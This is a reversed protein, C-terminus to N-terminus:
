VINLEYMGLDLERVHRTPTMRKSCEKGSSEAPTLGCLRCFVRGSHMDTAWVHWPASLNREVVPMVEQLLESYTVEGGRM